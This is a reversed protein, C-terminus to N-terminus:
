VVRERQSGRLHGAFQPGNPVPRCVSPLRACPLHRCAGQYSTANTLCWRGELHLTAYICATTTGSRLYRDVASAYMAKAYEVDTPVDCRVIAVTDLVAFMCPLGNLNATAADDRGAVRELEIDFTKMGAIIRDLTVDPLAHPDTNQDAFPNTM